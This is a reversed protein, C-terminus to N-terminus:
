IRKEPSRFWNEGNDMRELFHTFSSGITIHYGENLDIFASSIMSITGDRSSKLGILEGGGNDGIGIKKEIKM